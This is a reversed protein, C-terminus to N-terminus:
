KILVDKREEIPATGVLVGDKFVDIRSIRGNEHYRYYKGDYLKGNKFVGEQLVQKAKNYTINFGNLLAKDLNTEGEIAVMEEPKAQVKVKEKASVSKKDDFLKFSGEIEAGDTFSVESKLTGDENFRQLVGDEKGNKAVFSMEVNGNEFYYKQIGNTVGFDNFQKEQKIQGSEYFRKYVGTMRGKSWVGQEKVNGNAHYLTYPGDPRNSAFNLEAQPKGNEYYKVWTGNKKNDKYFGCEVKAKKPYALQPKDKGYFCWYGQKRGQDDKQNLTDGNEPVNAMLPFFLLTLFIYFLSTKM